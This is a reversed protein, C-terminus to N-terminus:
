PFQYEYGIIYNLQYIPQHTHFNFFTYPLKYMLQISFRKNKILAINDIVTWSQDEYFEMSEDANMMSCLRLLFTDYIYIYM